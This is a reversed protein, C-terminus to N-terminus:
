APAARVRDPDPSRGPGAAEPPSPSVTAIIVGNGPGEMDDPVAVYVRADRAPIRYVGDAIHCKIKHGQAREPTLPKGYNRGKFLQVKVTTQGGNTDDGKEFWDGSDDDWGVSGMLIPM